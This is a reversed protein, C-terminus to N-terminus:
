DAEWEFGPFVFYFISWWGCEWSLYLKFPGEIEKLSGDKMMAQYKVGGAAFGLGTEAEQNIEFSIDAIFYRCDDFRLYTEHAKQIKEVGTKRPLVRGDALIFPDALEWNIETFSKKFWSGLFELARQNIDHKHNPHFEEYIFSNVMGPIRTDDMEHLFLEETIFRYIVRDEYDACTSLEVGQEMMLHQIRELEIMIAEDGLDSEKVFDPKGLFEYIPVRKGTAHQTEFALVRQLFAQELEPPIENCGGFEAGFEAMMKLKLINNEVRIDESGQDHLNETTNNM